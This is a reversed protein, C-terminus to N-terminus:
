GCPLVVTFRAGGSPAEDVDVTGGHARVIERVVALGIGRGAVGTAASGRWFRDFARDREEPRLGPGSDAVVLAAADSDEPAVIVDIAGGDPTFKLANSLLNAVVQGLKVRDGHVAVPALDEHVSLRKARLQPGLAELAAATLEALDTLERDPERVTAGALGLADLQEVLGDLRLVEEHLSALREPTPPEIGDILEELNGRLITMPTRVEHSLDAVMQRRAHAEREQSAAMADFARALEGLEGPMGSQQARAGLDGARLRRATTTLRRLPRVIRGSVAAAVLLALAISIASGILVANRLADRLRQEDRALSGRFRLEATGVGRGASEVPATVATAHRGAGPGRGAAGAPGIVVNGGADRVILVADQRAAIAAADGVRAGTWSAQERYARSLAVAVEHAARRRDGDSVRQTESSTQTAVVAALVAVAIVAVAVFALALRARLSVRPLRDAM